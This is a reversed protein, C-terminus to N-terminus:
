GSDAGLLLHPVEFAAAADSLNGDCTVLTAAAEISCALHLADLTRLALRRSLLLDRARPFVEPAMPLRQYRGSLVDELYSNAALAAQSETLEKMRVWRSLASAFEVETLASLLVSRDAALLFAEVAESQPESRYFPVLASTDLYYLGQEV